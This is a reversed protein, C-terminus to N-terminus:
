TFEGTRLIETVSRRMWRYEGHAKIRDFAAEPADSDRLLCMIFLWRASQALLLHLTGSADMRGGHHAIANRQDKVINTWEDVDTVLDGFVSGANAACRLLRDHFYVSDSYKARDYSELSAACNM